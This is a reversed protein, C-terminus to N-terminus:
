KFVTTNGKLDKSVKVLNLLPLNLVPLGAQLTLNSIFARVYPFVIAISNQYFYEPINEFAPADSIKFTGVLVGKIFEKKDEINEPNIAKIIFSLNLLYLGTKTNYTGGAGLEIDINNGGNHILGLSFEPIQFGQLQFSSQAPKDM